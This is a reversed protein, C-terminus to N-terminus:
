LALTPGTMWDHARDYLRAQARTGLREEPRPPCLLGKCEKGGARWSLHAPGLFDECVQRIVEPAVM